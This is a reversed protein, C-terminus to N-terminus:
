TLNSPTTKLSLLAKKLIGAWLSGFSTNKSEFKFIDVKAHFKAIEFIVITNEFEHGFIGLNPM